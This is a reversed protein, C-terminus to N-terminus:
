VERQFVENYQDARSKPLQGNIHLIANKKDYVHSYLFGGRRNFNEWYKKMVELDDRDEFVLVQGGQDPGVDFHTGQTYTKPVLNNTWDPDDDVPYTSGVELGEDEFAQVVDAPDPATAQSTNSTLPHKPM